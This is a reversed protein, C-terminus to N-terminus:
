ESKTEKTLSKNDSDYNADSLSIVKKLVLVIYAIAFMAVGGIVAFKVATTIFGDAIEAVSSFTSILTCEVRAASTMKEVHKEVFPGTRLKLKEVIFDALEKDDQVEVYIKIYGKNQEADSTKSASTTELKAYEYSVSNMIADVKDQVIPDERWPAVVKEVLVEAERRADNVQISLLSYEQNYETKKLITPNYENEMFEARELTIQSLQAELIVITEKHQQDNAIVDSPAGKYISLQEFIKTYEEDYYTKKYEVVATQLKNIRQRLEKKQERLADFAKVAALAAEYDQADCEEKPPLGNEDLLLKEAFYESQLNYLLADTSDSHSVSFKLTATYTKNFCTLIGGVAGVVIGGVLAIVILLVMNSKFINWLDAITIEKKVNNDINNEM